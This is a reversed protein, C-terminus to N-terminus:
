QSFHENLQGIVLEVLGMASQPPKVPKSVELWQAPSNQSSFKSTEMALLKEKGDFSFRLRDKTNGAVLFWSGFSSYDYQHEFLKLEAKDLEGVINALFEIHESQSSM